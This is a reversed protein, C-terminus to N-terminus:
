RDWNVRGLIPGPHQMYHGWTSHTIVWVRMGTWSGQPGVNGVRVGGSRSTAQTSDITRPLTQTRSPPPHKHERAARTCESPHAGAAQDDPQGCTNSRQGGTINQICAATQQRGSVRWATPGPTGHKPNGGKARNHRRGREPPAAQKRMMAQVSGRADTSRSM